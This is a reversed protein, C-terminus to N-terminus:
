FPLRQPELRELSGVSPTLVAAPIDAAPSLRVGVMDLIDFAPRVQHKLQAVDADQTPAAVVGAVVARMPRPGIADRDLATVYM